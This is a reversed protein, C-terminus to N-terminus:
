PYRGWNVRAVLVLRKTSIKAIKPAFNIQWPSYAGPADSSGGYIMSGIGTAFNATGPEFDYSKDRYFTGGVYAAPLTTSDSFAQTGGPQGSTSGLVDTETAIAGPADGSYFGLMHGQGNGVGGHGWAIYFGIQSARVIYTYTVGSITITSTVDAAPSYLRLEYTVQLQDAATKVIVTPTGTGDKFLQRTWMTGGSSASFLGIETLNGNANAELFTFTYKASWYAFAPGSTATWGGVGVRTGLATQLTTDANTPATSGTGVGAFAICERPRGTSGMFNLAADTILNKFKWEKKVKKTRADILKIHFFGAYRLGPLELGAEITRNINLNPAEPIWIRGPRHFRTM